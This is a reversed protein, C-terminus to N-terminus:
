KKVGSKGVKRRVVENDYKIGKGKYPEPKKLSRIEAAVQGVKFKDIGEVSIKTNGDLKVSVGDPVVYEFQTSYGLNLFLSNGQQEVRYGIGNITLSKSFGETVGKVMNFILSRYLGHYAKTKKDNFARDVIVRGNEVKVNISDKIDQVLKGRTGEVIVLNGKVDIKVTDPIKIPLRGIRSM